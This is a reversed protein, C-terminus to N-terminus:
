GSSACYTVIEPFGTLGAGSSVNIIVGRGQLLMHPLVVRTAYLVGKVNVDDPCDIPQQLAQGIREGRLAAEDGIRSM